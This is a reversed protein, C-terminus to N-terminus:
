RAGMLASNGEALLRVLEEEFHDRGGTRSPFRARYAQRIREIEKSLRAYLDRHRRGQLVAEENYLLLESVLLHAFRRADSQRRREEDSLGDDAAPRRPFADLDAILARVEAEEPPTIVGGARASHPAPGPPPAEGPRGPRRTHAALREMALGAVRAVIEFSLPRGADATSGTDGYLVAVPRTRVLVPVACAERPRVRGLAAIIREGPGESGTRQLARSRLARGLLHDEGAPLSVRPVTESVFGGEGLFGLGAWGSLTGEKVVFVAARPYFAAAADMLATLIERQSEHRALADVAERLAQIQGEGEAAGWEGPALEFELPDSLERLAGEIQSRIRAARERLLRGSESEIRERLRGGM